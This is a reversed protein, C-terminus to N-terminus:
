SSPILAPFTKFLTEKSTVDPTSSLLSLSSTSGLSNCTTRSPFSSFAILSIFTKTVLINHSLSSLEPSWFTIHSRMAYHNSSPTTTSLKYHTNAVVKRENEIPKEPINPLWISHVHYTFAM